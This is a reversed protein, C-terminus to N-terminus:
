EVCEVEETEPDILFSVCDRVDPLLGIQMGAKVCVNEQNRLAYFRQGLQWGWYFSKSPDFEYLLDEAVKPVVHNAIVVAPNIMDVATAPPPEPLGFPVCAAKGIARKRDIQSLM